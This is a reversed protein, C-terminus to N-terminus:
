EGGELAIELLGRAFSHQVVQAGDRSRWVCRVMPGVPDVVRMFGKPSHETIVIDGVRIPRTM